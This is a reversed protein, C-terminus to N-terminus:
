RINITVVKVTGLSGNVNLYVTNGAKATNNAGITFRCKYAEGGQPANQKCEDGVSAIQLGYTDGEPPVQVYAGPKGQPTNFSISYVGGFTGKSDCNLTSDSGKDLQCNNTQAEVTFLYNQLNYKTRGGGSPKDSNGTNCGLVLTGAIAVIILNLKKMIKTGQVFNILVSVGFYVM